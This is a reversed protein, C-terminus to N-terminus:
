TESSGNTDVPKRDEYWGKVYFIFQAAACAMASYAAIWRPLNENSDGMPILVFAMGAGLLVIGVHYTWEVGQEWRRGIAADEHQESRLDQTEEEEWEPPRWEAIEAHSYM